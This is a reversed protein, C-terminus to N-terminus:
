GGCRRFWFWASRWPAQDGVQTQGYDARELIFGDAFLAQLAAEDMWRRPAEATPLPPELENLHAFLLYLGGPKVLRRLSRHYAQLEDHDLGHACGVDLAFDYPTTLFDPAAVSGVHFHAKADLGAATARQTAEEIAQAIFDVGDVEWGLRAMFLTARGLGCGLDLARGVPLTPVTALVEPPPDAQDWPVPGSQYFTLLREYHSM